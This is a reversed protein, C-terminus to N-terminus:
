RPLEREIKYIKVEWPKKNSLSAIRMAYPSYFSDIERCNTEIFTKMDEYYPWLNGYVINWVPRNIYIYDMEEPYVIYEIGLRTVYASFTLGENELYALNRYDILTGRDFAYESNLNALVKSDSPVSSKIRDLYNQYDHNLFPIVALLTNVLVMLGMLLAPLWKAKRILKDAVAFVMLWCLPFFMIAAPQSYRGIMFVGICVAAIPILIKLIKKDFFSYVASAVIGLGFIVFQPKIPPTYYTGSVGAFLKVFYQPFAAIRGVLTMEVGIAKGTQLYDKIFNPDFLFSLGIFVGAFAAVVGILLLLHYFRIKKEALYYLYLGGACIAIVLSNPHIGIMLGIMAGTMIDNKTRWADANHLIYYIM